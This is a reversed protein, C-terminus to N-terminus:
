LAERHQAALQRAEEVSPLNEPAYTDGLFDRIAKTNTSKDDILKPLSNTHGYLDVLVYPRKGYILIYGHYELAQILAEPSDRRQWLETVLATREERTLGSMDEQFKDYLSLQCHTTM